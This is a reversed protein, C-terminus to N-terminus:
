YMINHFKIQVLLDRTDTFILIEKEKFKSPLQTKAVFVALM